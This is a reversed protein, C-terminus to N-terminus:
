CFFLARAYVYYTYENGVAARSGADETESLISFSVIHLIREGLRGAGGGKDSLLLVAFLGQAM